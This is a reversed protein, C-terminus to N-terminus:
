WQLECFPRSEVKPKELSARTLRYAVWEAQEYKENYSISYHDKFLIEDTKSGPLYWRPDDSLILESLDAKERSTHLVDKLNTLFWTLAISAGVILLLLRGGFARTRSHNRRLKVMYCLYLAFSYM